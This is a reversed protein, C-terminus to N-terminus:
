NDKLLFSVVFLRLYNCSPLNQNLKNNHITYILKNTPLLGAVPSIPKKPIVINYRDCLDRITKEDALKIRSGGPKEKFHMQRIQAGLWNPSSRHPDNKEKGKDIIDLIDSTKFEFIYEGKGFDIIAKAIEAQKSESEIAKRVAEAETM